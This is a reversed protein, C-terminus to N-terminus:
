KCLGTTSEPSGCCCSAAKFIWVSNRLCAATLSTSVICSSSAARVICDLKRPCWSLSFTLCIIYYNFSILKIWVLSPFDKPQRRGFYYEGAGDDMIADLIYFFFIKLEIKQIHLNLSITTIFFWWRQFWHVFRFWNALKTM